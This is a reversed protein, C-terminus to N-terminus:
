SRGSGGHLHENVEGAIWELEVVPLGAGVSWSDVGAALQLVHVPVGNVVAAVTVDAGDLEETPGGDTSLAVRGALSTKVEWAFEGISLSTAKAPDFFTQKAVLGGALWFPAMFLLPAGVTFTAPAIVSFWMASFVGGFLTGTNLGAAPVEVLLTGADSRAITTRAGRPRQVLRGVSVDPLVTPM